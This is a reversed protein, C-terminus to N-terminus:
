VVIRVPASKFNPTRSRKDINAKILVNAEPYFMAVTGSRIQGVVVEINDMEGAEGVVKIRQGDEINLKEADEKSMLICYRHPMGRYIDYEEYVVTNFQGESRLTILRFEDKGKVKPLPTEHMIAKGNVTNFQPTHFLRGAVTFEKKTSDMTAIEQWGPVVEAILKRIESHSVFRSWDVPHKDLVRSALDCIVQSEARMMGKVNPQGGESMRVYNFMSEQTTPQPEEDRALVPLILTTKGRGHFHGPNLKTSLYVTTGINQMSKTAWSLNPNSGWLNGGLCILTSLEGREAAEIMGHTDYGVSDPTKMNYARELAQRMGEQLGPTFGVSGVGQVNSHGRLPLLGAGPRGVQGCALALNCLALVNDVGSEHHTLGMAWAFMASKAQSLMSATKEIYRKEVGSGDVIEQWTTARAQNLVTESGQTYEALYERNVCGSEDLAKLVGVLYHVDGGAHPQVYLSAIESGLLFSRVQSPVHFKKLGTEVIPNVVVIHGGRKRLDSLQTMIRPHNSAPNSGIIMIFDAKSVDDLSVTATGTGFSMKLAVGSAQHCYFSCNMVHNTGYARAFSQLLFAAENSSRGSAYFATENPKSQKLAQAAISMATDWHVPKFHTAGPELLVPYILRGADEAQKPTLNELYHIDHKDFYDADIAGIMDAAQAQLSKKCVEPFHGSENVMGGLQGGMGVACTKCANRSTMRKWLRWPGVQIAKEISYAVAQWGGGAKIKRPTKVVQTM